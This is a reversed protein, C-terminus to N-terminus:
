PGFSSLGLYVIELADLAPNGEDKAKSQLAGLVVIYSSYLLSFDFCVSYRMEVSGLQQVRKGKPLYM